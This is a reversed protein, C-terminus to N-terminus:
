YKDPHIVEVIANPDERIRVVQGYCGDALDDCTFAGNRSTRKKRPCYFNGSTRIWRGLLSDLALFQGDCMIRVDPDPTHGVALRDLKLTELMTSLPECAGQQHNGRYLLLESVVKGLDTSDLFHLFKQDSSNERVVKNLEDVSGLQQLTEVIVENIGGHCYLVGNHVHAVPRQELWQGLETSSM